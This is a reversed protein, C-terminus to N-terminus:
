LSSERVCFSILDEAKSRYYDSGFDEDSEDFPSKKARSIVEECKKISNVFDRLKHALFEAFFLSIQLSDKDTKEALSYYELSQNADGNAYSVDALTKLLFAQKEDNGGYDKLCAELASIANPYDGRAFANMYEIYFNNESLNM